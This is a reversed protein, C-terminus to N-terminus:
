NAIVVRHTYTGTLNKVKAMYIGPLLANGPKIVLVHDSEKESKVAYNRGTIDFLEVLAENANEVKLSFQNGNAPNPFAGFPQNKDDIVVSVLRFTETTGDLDVQKLRYYNTGFSPTHDITSYNKRLTSSVSTEIRAVETFTKLDRSREVTFYASNSEEVTEWSIKVTKNDQAKANFKVLTVPLTASTSGAIELTGGLPVNWGSAPVLAADDPNSAITTWVEAITANVRGGETIVLEQFLWEGNEHVFRLNTTGLVGEYMIYGNADPYKVNITNGNNGPDRVRKIKMVTGNFAALAGSTQIKTAPICAGEMRIGNTWGECAPYNHGWYFTIGAKSLDDGRVRIDNTARITKSSVHTGSQSTFEWKTASSNWVVSNNFQYPPSPDPSNYTNVPYGDGDFPQAISNYVRVHYAGDSYHESNFVQAINLTMSVDVNNKKLYSQGQASVGLLLVLM